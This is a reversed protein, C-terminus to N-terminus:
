ATRLKRTVELWLGYIYLEDTDMQGATPTLVLTLSSPAAPVDGSDITMTYEALSAGTVEPDTGACDTDGAGFYAKTSDAFFAATQKHLGLTEILFTEYTTEALLALKEDRTKGAFPDTPAEFLTILDGLFQM